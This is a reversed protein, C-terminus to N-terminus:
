RGLADLDLFRGGQIVSEIERTNRIDALPDGRLVVLDAIKGVEVTGSEEGIGLADAANRTAISLVDLPPIGASALLELERHFTAAAPLDSGALLRVGGDHLRKAFALVTPWTEKARRFDEVDWSALNRQRLSSIFWEPVETGVPHEPADPADAWFWAEWHVLTPDVAVENSVLAAILDDIEPSQLDVHEFWQYVSESGGEENLYSQRRDEPLLDSHQPIIHLLGDIGARAAVAWNTSAIHGLVRIGREHAEDIAALALEEPLFFYLKVYDVGAEAQRRVEARVEDETTVLVATPDISSPDDILRGATFIRPGPIEGAAVAERLAVSVETPGGPNRITTMGFTLQSRLAAESYDGWPTAATESDAAVAVHTHVDVFGPVLYRGSLDRVDADDPVRYEGGTGVAIVRDGSVAVMSDAIPAGGTGDILTAGELVLLNEGELLPPGSVCGWALLALALSTAPASVAIRRLPRVLM